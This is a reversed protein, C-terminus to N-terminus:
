MLRGTKEINQEHEYNLCLVWLLTFCIGPADGHYLIIPSYLGSTSIVDTIFMNEINDGKASFAFVWFLLSLWLLGGMKANRDLSTKSSM